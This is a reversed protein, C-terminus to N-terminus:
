NQFYSPLMIKNYILKLNVKLCVVVTQPTQSFDCMTDKLLWLDGIAVRCVFTHLMESINEKYVNRRDIFMDFKVLM